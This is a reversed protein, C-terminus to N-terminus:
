KANRDGKSNIVTAFKLLKYSAKLQASNLNDQNIVFRFKNNDLYFSIMSGDYIDDYDDSIILMNKKELADIFAKQRKLKINRIYLMHCGQTESKSVGLTLPIVEVSHKNFQKSHYNNQLSLAFERDNYVCVKFTDIEQPWTIFMSFRELYVEKIKNESIAHLSTLELFLFFTILVKKIM